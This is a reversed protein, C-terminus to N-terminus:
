ELSNKLKSVVDYPVKLTGKGFGLKIHAKNSGHFDSGGSPVIGYKEALALASKTADADYESYYCEMGVLGRASAQPLLTELRDVNLNLLPHALVPIAGIQNIFDIMDFISIRETEKYYGMGPSLLTDFAEDKSKTYGLRTLENAVATRNFNGNPVSNKVTEYDIKYGARNLAAILEVNRKRKRELAPAIFATVETFKDQPIFLAVLHLEKGEYGVSFEAGAVAEIDKDKAANLFEPLGLVTDHDCLAVASLGTKVASDIIESPTFSGDSFVSHTHLDCINM